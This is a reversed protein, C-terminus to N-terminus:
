AVSPGTPTDADPTPEFNPMLERLFPAVTERLADLDRTPLDQVSDETIPFGYSWGRVAAVILNDNLAELLDFAEGMGAAISLQQDMTLAEGSVKQAAEAEQVAAVFSPLAALKSNIRKIPRRQRETVDSVDRLDVTAGSPMTLHQPM